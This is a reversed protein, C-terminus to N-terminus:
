RSESVLELEAEWSAITKRYEFWYICWCTGWPLCGPDKSKKMIMGIVDDHKIRVLDGAKM